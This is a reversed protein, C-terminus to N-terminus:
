NAVILSHNHSHLTNTKNYQMERRCKKSQLDAMLYSVTSEAGSQPQYLRRGDYCGGTCPNYIIQQLHNNGLFWSFAMEMKQLYANNKFTDNFKALAL